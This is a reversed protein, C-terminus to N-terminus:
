RGTSVAHCIKGEADEDQSFDHHMCFEGFVRLTLRSFFHEFDITADVVKEGAEGIM